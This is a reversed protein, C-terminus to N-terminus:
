EIRDVQPMQQDSLRGPLFQLQRPQKKNRRRMRWEFRLAM